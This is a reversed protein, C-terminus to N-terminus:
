LKSRYHKSSSLTQAQIQVVFPAAAQCSYSTTLVPIVACINAVLRIGSGGLLDKDPLLRVAQVKNGVIAFILLVITGLAWVILAGMGIWSAVASSELSRCSECFEAACVRWSSFCLSANSLGAEPM